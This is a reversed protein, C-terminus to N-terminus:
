NFCGRLNVDVVANFVAAPTDWVVYGPSNVGANLCALSIPGLGEAVRVLDTVSRESTVDVPHSHVEAGDALLASEAGALRGADAAPILVRHGRDALVHALALGIGGAGGTIVALGQPDRHGATVRDCRADPRRGDHQRRARGDAQRRRQTVGIGPG